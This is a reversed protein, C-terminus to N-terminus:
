ILHLKELPFAIITYSDSVCNKVEEKKELFGIITHADSTIYKGVVWFLFLHSVFDIYQHVIKDPDSINAPINSVNSVNGPINVTM